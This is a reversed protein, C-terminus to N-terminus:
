AKRVVPAFVPDGAMTEYLGNLMNVPTAKEPVVIHVYHAQMLTFFQPQLEVPVGMLQALGVLHEGSGQAMEQSLDDFNLVAYANLKENKVFVGDNTCGSTGFSIGFTQSGFSGNTTAILSQQLIHKTNGSEGWAVKGLGCGPGTDSVAAQAVVAQTCMVIVAFSFMRMKMIEEKWGENAFGNAFKEGRARTQV